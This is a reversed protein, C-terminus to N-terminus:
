HFKETYSKTAWKTLLRRKQFTCNMVILLTLSTSTLLHPNFKLFHELYELIPPCGYNLSLPLIEFTALYGGETCHFM